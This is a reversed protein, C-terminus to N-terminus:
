LIKKLEKIIENIENRAVIEKSKTGMKCFRDFNKNTESDLRNQQSMIQFVRLSLNGLFNISHIQDYIKYLKESTSEPLKIILGSLVFTQWAETIYPKPFSWGLSTMEEDNLSVSDGDTEFKSKINVPLKKFVEEMRKMNAELEILVLKILDKYKRYNKYKDWCISLSFGLIVGTFAIIADQM